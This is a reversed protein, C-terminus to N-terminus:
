LSYVISLVVTGRKVCERYIVMNFCEERDFNVVRFLLPFSDGKILRSSEFERKISISITRSKTGPYKM